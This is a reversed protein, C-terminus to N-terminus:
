KTRKETKKDRPVGRHALRVEVSCIGAGTVPDDQCFAMSHGDTSFSTVFIWEDSHFVQQEPGNGDAPKEYIGWHGDRLSTYAIKKGDATWIPDRNDNEFTLRALTKRALDYTWINWLQGEVTVALHNGDPSLSLDEYAGPSPTVLKTTGNRDVEVIEREPRTESGPAYVLMGNESVAFQNFVGGNNNAVGNIVPASPGTLRLSKLDFPVTWLSGGRGFVLYGPALYAPNTATQLITRLKLTKLSLLAVSSELGGFGNEVTVLLSKGDPLIRAQSFGVAGKIVDPSILSRCKGGYGSVSMLAGYGGSYYITWDSAWVASGNGAAGSCLVQPVGGGLPIKELKTGAFFGLWEGDPSFFPSEGGETGPIPKPIFDDIQRVWIQSVGGASAVFAILSSDPSIAINTGDNLLSHGAPMAVSLRAPSDSAIPKRMAFWLGAVIVGGALLGAVGWLFPARHRLSTSSRSVTRAAYVSSDALVGSLLEDITIRADGISQLRQRPDKKLCRQLLNRIAQPTNPPLLSWDPESKIVAPLKSRM